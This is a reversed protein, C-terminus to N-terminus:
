TNFFLSKGERYTGRYLNLPSDEDVRARASGLSKEQWDGKAIEASLSPYQDSLIM